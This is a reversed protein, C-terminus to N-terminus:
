ERGGVLDPRLRQADRLYVHTVEEPRRTTNVLMLVRICRSVEGPVAMESAGVLPVYTWGLSRAAAAPFTATLDPTCTFLCAAIDDPVVGNVEVMKVLLERTAELIDEETDAETTTAGRIGRVVMM